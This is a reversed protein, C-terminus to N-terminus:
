EAGALALTWSNFKKPRATFRLAHTALGLLRGCFFSTVYFTKVHLWEWFCCELKRFGSTAAKGLKSAARNAHKLARRPWTYTERQRRAEKNVEGVDKGSKRVIQSASAMKCSGDALGEDFWDLDLEGRTERM